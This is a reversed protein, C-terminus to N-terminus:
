AITGWSGEVRGRGHQFLCACTTDQNEAIDLYFPRDYDPKALATATALTHRLHDFANVATTTWLLEAKPSDLGAKKM